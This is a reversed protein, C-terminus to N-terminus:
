FAKFQELSVQKEFVVSYANYAETLIASLITDFREKEAALNFNHDSLAVKISRMKNEEDSLKQKMEGIKELKKKNIENAIQKNLHKRIESTQQRITDLINEKSKELTKKVIRNKNNKSQVYEITVLALFGLGGDIFSVLVSQWVANFISKKLFEVWPAKGDTAGEIIASYDQLCGSLMIQFWDMDSATVSNRKGKTIRESLNAFLDESKGLSTNLEKQCEEVIKQVTVKNEELYADIKEAFYNTVVTIFKGTFKEMDARRSEKSAFINMQKIGEWMYSLTGIDVKEALSVMDQEWSKVINQTCGNLVETIKNQIKLSCNDFTKETLFISQEIKDIIEKCEAEQEEDMQLENEYRRIYDEVQKEANRYTSAMQSFCKQYQAICKEDTTLFTELEKEFPEFGSLAFKRKCEDDSLLIEREMENDYMMKRRADLARLASIGFMRRECLEENFVSDKDTFVSEIDLKLKAIVKEQDVRRILDIKNLLFFVNNPCNRFTSQIYDKDPTAFGKEPVVYIIAQAEQAINLALETAVKKDELGPTDIITVGDEMLPKSCYIIAYKVKAFREITGQEKFQIEDEPKYKYEEQFDKVSMQRCEGTKVSGDEQIEDEMYVNAVDEETGYQIFTLVATSPLTSEPLIKSGVLANIVTSKGSTFTGMIAVKFLGDRVVKAEENCRNQELGIGLGEIGDAVGTYNIGALSGINTLSTVLKQHKEKNYAM